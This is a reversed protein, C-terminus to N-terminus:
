VHSGQRRASGGTGSSHELYVNIAREWGRMFEAFWAESYGAILANGRESLGTYAYSIDAHTRNAGAERLQISIRTAVMNPRVWTFGIRFAQPDYDTVVWVTEHGDDNPTAFVCGLEALGSESYIMRYRWGPAWEAERVPCLLPFVREPPANNTQTYSRSVRTSTFENM